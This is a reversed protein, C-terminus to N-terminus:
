KLSWGVFYAKQDHGFFQYRVILHDAIDTYSELIYFCLRGSLQQSPLLRYSAKTFGDELTAITTHIDPTAIVSGLNDLQFRHPLSLDFAYPSENEFLVDLVVYIQLWEAQRELGFRTKIAKQYVGEKPASVSVRLGGIDATDGLHLIRCVKSSAESEPCPAIPYTENCFSTANLFSWILVSLGFGKLRICFM